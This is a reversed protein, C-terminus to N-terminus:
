SNLSCHKPWAWTPLLISAENWWDNSTGHFFFAALNTIMEHFDVGFHEFVDPKHPVKGVVMKGIMCVVVEVVVVVALVCVVHSAM